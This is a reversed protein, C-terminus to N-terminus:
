IVTYDTSIHWFNHSKWPKYALFATYDTSIAFFIM